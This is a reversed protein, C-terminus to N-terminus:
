KLDLTTQARELLGDKSADFVLEWRGPMHCLMGTVRFRGPSVATVTPKVNMGHGHHPMSADVALTRDTLPVTCADDAFLEVELEFPDSVPIPDPLPRWRVTFTDTASRVTRAPTTPAPPVAAPQPAAAAPTPAGTSSPAPRDGCGTLAALLGAALLGSAPLAGVSGRVPRRRM